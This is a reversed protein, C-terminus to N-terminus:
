RATRRLTHGVQEEATAKLLSAVLVSCSSTAQQARETKPETPLQLFPEIQFGDEEVRDRVILVLGAIVTGWIVMSVSLDLILGWPIALNFQIALMSVEGIEGSSAPFSAQEPDLTAQKTAPANTGFFRALARV